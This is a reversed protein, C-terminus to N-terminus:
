PRLLDPCKDKFHKRLAEAEEGEFVELYPEAFNTGNELEDSGRMAFEFVVATEDSDGDSSELDIKIVNDLNIVRNGVRILQAMAVEGEAAEAAYRPKKRWGFSVEHRDPLAETSVGHGQGDIYTLRAATAHLVWLHWASMIRTSKASAQISGKATAQAKGTRRFEVVRFVM